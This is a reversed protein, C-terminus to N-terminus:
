IKIHFQSIFGFKIRRFMGGGGKRETVHSPHLAEHHMPERRSVSYAEQRAHNQTDSVPMSVLSQVKRTIIIIIMMMMMMMM